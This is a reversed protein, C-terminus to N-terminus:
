MHESDMKEVVSERSGDFVAVVDEMGMKVEM